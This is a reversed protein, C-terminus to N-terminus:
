GPKGDPRPAVLFPAFSVLWGLLALSWLTGAVMLLVRPTGFLPAAARLAGATVMLAFAATAGPGAALTRGTHGLSVRGLMGITLSGIAGAALAHLGVAPPLLAVSGAALAALGVPIWWCGVHLIWLLPEGLTGLSRWRVLRAALVTAASALLAARVRPWDQALPALLAAGLAFPVLKEIAPISEVGLDPLANRTFLPVIRGGVVVLVAVFVMLVVELLQSSWAVATPHHLAVSCAALFPLAALFGYNRRSGAAILPRGIAVTVGLLWVVDPAASWLGGPVGPANAIRGLIWALVLLALPGNAATARGGAWHRVATLLFGALVAGTYGILMEHGHWTMGPLVTPAAVGAYLLLLWLPVALAGFAGAALFFPRFGTALVVPGPPPPLPEGALRLPIKM